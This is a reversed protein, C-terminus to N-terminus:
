CDGEIVYNESLVGLEFCRISEDIIISLIDVIVYYMKNNFKIVYYSGEIEEEENFDVNVIYEGECLINDILEIDSIIKM